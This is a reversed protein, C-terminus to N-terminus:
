LSATAGKEYRSLHRTITEMVMDDIEEISGVFNIGLSPGAAIFQLVLSEFQARIVPEILLKVEGWKKGQFNNINRMILKDSGSLSTNSSSNINEEGEFNVLDLNKNVREHTNGEELDLAQIAPISVAKELFDSM